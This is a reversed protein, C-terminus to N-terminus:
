KLYIVCRDIMKFVGKVSFIENNGTNRKRNTVVKWFELELLSKGNTYFWIQQFKVATCELPGFLTWLAWLFPELQVFFHQPRSSFRNEVPVNYDCLQYKLM